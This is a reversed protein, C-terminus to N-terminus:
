INKEEGGGSEVDGSPPIESMEDKLKVSSFVGGPHVLALSRSVGALRKPRKKNLKQKDEESLELGGPYLKKLSVSILIVIIAWAGSANGIASGVATLFDPDLTRSCSFPPNDTYSATCVKDFTQSCHTGTFNNFLIQMEPCELIDAVQSPTNAYGQCESPVGIYQNIQYYLGDFSACQDYFSSELEADIIIHSINGNCISYSYALQIYKVTLYDERFNQFSGFTKTALDYYPEPVINSFYIYENDTGSLMYDSSPYQGLVEVPQSVGSAEQLKRINGLNQTPNNIEVVEAFLETMSEALSLLNENIELVHEGSGGKNFGYKEQVLHINDELTQLLEPFHPKSILLYRRAPPNPNPGPPPAVGGPALTPVMTPVATPQASLDIKVMNYIPSGTFGYAYGDFVLIQDITTIFTENRTDGNVEPHMSALNAYFTKTIDLSSSDIQYFFFQDNSGPAGTSEGCQLYLFGDTGYSLFHDFGVDESDDDVVVDSDCSVRTQTATDTELNYGFLTGSDANVPKNFVYLSGGGFTFGDVGGDGFDLSLLPEAVSLSPNLRFIQKRGPIEEAVVYVDFDEGIIFDTLLSSFSTSIPSIDGNSKTFYYSIAPLNLGIRNERPFSDIISGTIIKTELYAGYCFRYNDALLLDYCTSDATSLGYSSIVYDDRNSVACVDLNNSGLINKCEENTYRPKSYQALESSVASFSKEDNKPSLVACDYSSGLTEFSIITETSTGSIIFYYSLVFTLIVISVEFIFCGRAVHAPAKLKQADDHVDTYNDRIPISEFLLM